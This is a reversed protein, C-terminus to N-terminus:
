SSYDNSLDCVDRFSFNREKYQEYEDPLEM